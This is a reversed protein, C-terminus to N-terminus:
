SVALPCALRTEGASSSEAWACPPVRPGAVDVGIRRGVGVSVNGCPGVAVGVGPYYGGWYGRPPYPYVPTVVMPPPNNADFAVWQGADSYWM